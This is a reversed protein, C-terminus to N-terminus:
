CALCHVVELSVKRMRTNRLMMIESLCVSIVTLVFMTSVVAVTVSKVSKKGAFIVSRCWEAEKTLEL